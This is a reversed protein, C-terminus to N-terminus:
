QQFQPAAYIKGSGTSIFVIVTDTSTSPVPASDGTWMLSSSSSPLTAQYGSPHIILTLRRLVGLTGPDVLTFACNATLTIEFADDGSSAFSLTQTGSCSASTNPTSSGGFIPQYQQAYSSGNVACFLTLALLLVQKM